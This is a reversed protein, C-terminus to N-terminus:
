IGQKKPRWIEHGSYQQILDPPLIMKREIYSVKKRTTHLGTLQIESDFEDYSCEVNDFNHNFYPKGIFNYIEKMTKEPSRALNDYEMIYISSKETSYIAQKVGDFAFGLTKDPRMLTHARSYVNVNEAPAFMTTTSLFNKRVLTEFSDLIWPLSRVCLIMKSQPYLDKLLPTLLSWGRNTDFYVEKGKTDCYNDFIGYILKKRMEPPCQYKYGGQSSSESIIARVFRALPGSISANFTPNQNLITSLLTSGSRPLGSIFHFQKSM